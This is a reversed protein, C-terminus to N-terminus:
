PNEKARANDATQNLRNEIAALVSRHDQLDQERDEIEGRARRAWREVFSDLWAAHTAANLSDMPGAAYENDMTGAVNAPYKIYPLLLGRQTIEDRAVVFVTSFRPWKDSILSATALRSGGTTTDFPNVGPFEKRVWEIAADFTPFVRYRNSIM